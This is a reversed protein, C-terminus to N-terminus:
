SCKNKSSQACLFIRVTGVPVITSQPQKPAAGFFGRCVWLSLNHNSITRNNHAKANTQITLQNPCRKEFWEVFIPKNPPTRNKRRHGNRKKKTLSESHSRVILGGDSRRARVELLVVFFFLSNFPRRVFFGFVVPSAAVHTHPPSPTSFCSSAEM